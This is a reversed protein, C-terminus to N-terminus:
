EIELLYGHIIESDTSDSKQSAKGSQCLYFHGGKQKQKLDM